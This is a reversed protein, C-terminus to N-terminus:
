VKEAGIRFSGEGAVVDEDQRQQGHRVVLAPVDVPRGLDM